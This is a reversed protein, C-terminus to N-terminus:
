GGKRDPMRIGKVLHYFKLTADFQSLNEPQAMHLPTDPGYDHDVVRGWLAAKFATPTRLGLKERAVITLPDYPPQTCDITIVIDQAISATDWSFRGAVERMMELSGWSAPSFISMPVPSTDVFQSRNGVMLDVITGMDACEPAVTLWEPRFTVQPRSSLRNIGMGMASLDMHFGLPVLQARRIEPTDLAISALKQMWEDEGWISLSALKGEATVARCYLCDVPDVTM